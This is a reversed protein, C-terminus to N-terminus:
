VDEGLTESGRDHVPPDTERLCQCRREVGSTATVAVGPAAMQDEVLGVAREDAEPAELASGGVALDLDAIGDRGLTAPTAKRGRGGAGHDLAGLVSTGVDDGRVGQGLGVTSM